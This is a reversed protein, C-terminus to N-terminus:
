QGEGQFVGLIVNLLMTLSLLVIGLAVGMAFEGKSTELAIATPINRTHDLINGGVMMSCGIEAIIRSFGAIVVALLGFRLELFVTLMAPIRKAGLTRATEYALKDGATFTAHAMAVLLPFCIIVQGIIMAPQTYLLRLDAAIGNKSLTLYVVVAPVSMLTNTITLVLRRGPFPKYALLFAVAIAPPSAILIARLSVSFSVGIASWVERDGTLLM